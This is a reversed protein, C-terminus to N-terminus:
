RGEQENLLKEIEECELCVVFTEKQWERNSWFREKTVPGDMTERLHKRLRAPLKRQWM